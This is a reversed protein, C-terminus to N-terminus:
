GNIFFQTKIDFNFVKLKWSISNLFHFSLGYVPLFYKYVVYRVFFMYQM